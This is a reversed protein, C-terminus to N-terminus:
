SRPVAGELTLLAQKLSEGGRYGGLGRAAVVRHCPILLPLPNAGVAGGVAQAGGAKGIREALQGYTVTEGYPIRLLAQWVQLQFASGHPALTLNFSHRRGALYAQLEARAGAFLADDRVGDSPPTPSCAGEPLRLEHLGRADGILLMEGYETVLPAYRM